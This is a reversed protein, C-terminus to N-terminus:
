IYINEKKIKVLSMFHKKILSRFHLPNETTRISIPLQNWYKVAIYSFRERVTSRLVSSLVINRTDYSHREQVMSIVGRLYLPANGNVLIHM